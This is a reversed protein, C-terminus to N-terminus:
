NEALRILQGAEVPQNSTTIVFEYGYLNGTIASRSDDSAVVQVDARSAVYRNGLPSSKSEVILVFKGNNDERIASNPVVMDYQASKQGVSVSLSQGDIVDGEVSFTLLKKQGPEDRDVKISELFIEVNDYRWSNVLEAADGVSLRKAQENTVSFSMTYGQGEPQISALVAAGYDDGTSDGARVPLSVITGSIPAKVTADVSKEQLEQVLEEADKVAQYPTELDYSDGYVFNIKAIIDDREANADALNKEQKELEAKIANVNGNIKNEKAKEANDLATEANAKQTKLNSVAKEKKEYTNVTNKDKKYEKQSYGDGVSVSGNEVKNVRKKAAQYASKDLAAFEEEAAKLSAEKKELNAQAEKIAKEEATVDVNEANASLDEYKKVAATYEEIKADAALLQNKFEVFSTESDTIVYNYLDESVDGISGTLFALEIDRKMDEYAKEAEELTKEAEVLEPDEEDSLEFLVDGKEVVDGERVLISEITRKTGELKVDRLDGSEVMGTGRIKATITDSVIYQAAVEPLSYNMITNSFFTLVLLVSLFIIAATKVWERRKTGNENMEKDERVKSVARILLVM